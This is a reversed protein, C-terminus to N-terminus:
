ATRLDNNFFINGAVEPSIELCAVLKYMFDASPQIEGNLVKGLTNRNVGSMEALKTVTKIGKDIMIKRLANNDTVYTM